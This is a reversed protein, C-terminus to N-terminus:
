LPRTVSCLELTGELMNLPV